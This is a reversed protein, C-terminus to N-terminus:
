WSGTNVRHADGAPRGLGTAVGRGPGVSGGGDRGRLTRRAPTTRAISPVGFVAVVGDGVFKEVQGGHRAVAGRM